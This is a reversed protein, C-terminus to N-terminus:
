KAVVEFQGDELYWLIQHEDASRGWVKGDEDIHEVVIVSGNLFPPFKADTTVKIEDGVEVM